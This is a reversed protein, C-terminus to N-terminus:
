GELERTVGELRKSVSAVIGFVDSESQDGRRYDSLTAQLVEITESLTSEIMQRVPSAPEPAVPIPVNTPEIDEGRLFAVADEIQARYEFSYWQKELGASYVENKFNRFAGRGHIAAKLREVVRPDDVTRTFAALREWPNHMGSPVSLYRDFQERVQRYNDMDTRLWEISTEEDDEVGRITDDPFFLVEGVERDLYYHGSYSNDELARVLTDWDQIALKQGM